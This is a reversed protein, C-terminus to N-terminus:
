DRGGLVNGGRRLESKQGGSLQQIRQQDDHKSNFSVAIGVGTYNEVSDEDASEDDAGRPDLRRQIILRGRGAPM